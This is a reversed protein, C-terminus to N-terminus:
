DGNGGSKYLCKLHNKTLVLLNSIRLGSLYLLILALKRRCNSFSNSPISNIIDNFECNTIADTLPLKLALQRKKRALERDNRMHQQIKTQQEVYDLKEQLAVNQKLLRQTEFVQKKRWDVFFRAWDKGSNKAVTNQIKEKPFYYVLGNKLPKCQQFVNSQWVESDCFENQISNMSKKIIAGVACNSFKQKYNYLSKGNITSVFKYSKKDGSNICKQLVKKKIRM